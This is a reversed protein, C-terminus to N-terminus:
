PNTLSIYEEHTKCPMWRGNPMQHAGSSGLKAAFEEAEFPFDFSTVSTAGSIGYFMISSNKAPGVLREILESFPYRKLKKESRYQRLINKFQQRDAFNEYYRITLYILELMDRNEKVASESELVPSRKVEVKKYGNCNNQSSVLYSYVPEDLSVANYSGILYQTFYNFSLETAGEFYRELIGETGINIGADQSAYIQMAPSDINAVLSWPTNRNVYFGHKATLLLYRKFAPDTVFEEKATMSNKNGALYELQLGTARIDNNRELFGTFTYPFNFQQSAIYKYFVSLFSEFNVIERNKYLVPELKQFQATMFNDFAAVPSVFGAQPKLGVFVSDSEWNGEKIQRNLDKLMEQYAVSVFSLVTLKKSDKFPKLKDERPIILNNQTDVVAYRNLTLFDIFNQNFFDAPLVENYAVADNFKEITSM